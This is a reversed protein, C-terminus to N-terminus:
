RGSSHPALWRRAEREIEAELPVRWTQRVRRPGPASLMPGGWYHPSPKKSLDITALVMRLDDLKEYSTIAGRPAFRTEEPKSEGAQNGGSDWVGAPCNLSSVAIALGNDSARAPMLERYYGANPFLLLEAGKYGLLRAPEPFWSDYCIIIGVKGFDTEFVPYGVGPSTGNDLEPDFLMNKDYVGVLKGDRDFLPASNYLVDGDRRTFTGSVYMKWQKAKASMFACAQGDLTEPAAPAQARDRCVNFIEPLLAVDAKREGAADLFRSWHDHNATPDDGGWGWSVAVKVPRPPIPEREQLSVRDWVVRGDASYRFCLRLDCDVDGAPGTFSREGIIWEGDRRYEFVGENFGHGFIAHVLHRNLDELGEVKLRVRLRYTKGGELRVPHKIFGFCEVRGNGSASLQTGGSADRVLAFKPGLARNPAVVTWGEPLEGTGRSAFRGNAILNGEDWSTEGGAAPVAAPILGSVLFLALCQNRANRLM